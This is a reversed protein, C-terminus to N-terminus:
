VFSTLALARGSGAEGIWGGLQQPVRKPRVDARDQTGRPGKLGEGISQSCGVGMSSSPRHVEGWRERGM